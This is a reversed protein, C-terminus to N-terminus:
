GLIEGFLAEYRDVVKETTYTSLVRARAAAGM